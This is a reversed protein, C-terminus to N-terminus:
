TTTSTPSSLPPFAAPHSVRAGIAQQARYFSIRDCHLGEAAAARCILPTDGFYIHIHQYATLTFLAAAANTM